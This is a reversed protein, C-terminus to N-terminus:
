FRRSPELRIQSRGYEETERLIVVSSSPLEASNRPFEARTESETDARIGSASRGRERDPHLGRERAAASSELVVLPSMSPSGDM